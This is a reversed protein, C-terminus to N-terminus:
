CFLNWNNNETKNDFNTIIFDFSKNKYHAHANKILTQTKSRKSEVQPIAVYNWRLKSSHWLVCRFRISISKLWVLLTNMNVFPSFLSSQSLLTKSRCWDFGKATSIIYNFIYIRLCSCRCSGWCRAVFMTCRAVHLTYRAVFLRLQTIILLHYINCFM